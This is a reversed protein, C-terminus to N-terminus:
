RGAPHPRAHRRRRLLLLCAGVALLSLTMPEPVEASGGVQLVVDQYDADGLCPLDEWAIVLEGASPGGTIRFTRMHDMGDCNDADRSSWLPAGSPDDAWRFVEGTQGVSLAARPRHDLYGDRWVWFLPRYEGGEEGPMYGIKQCYGSWAGVAEITVVDDNYWLQDLDGDIETLNALGYLNDLVGGPDMLMPEAHAAAGTLLLFAALSTIAQRNM